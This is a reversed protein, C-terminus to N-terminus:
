KGSERFFPIDDKGFFVTLMLLVTGIVVCCDAFNFVYFKFLAIDIYDVVYGYLLRDILNGAGGGTILTISLTLLWNSGKFSKVMLFVCGALLVAMLVTLFMGKGELIGFVAGRNEVYTLDIIRTDGIKIFEATGIAALGDLVWIKIVRDVAILV